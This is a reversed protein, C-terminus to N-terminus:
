CCCHRCGSQECYRWPHRYLVRRVKREAATWAADRAGRASATSQLVWVAVLTCPGRGESCLSGRRCSAFGRCCLVGLHSSCLCPRGECDAARLVRSRQRWSPPTQEGKRCNEIASGQTVPACTRKAGRGLAESNRVSACVGERCLDQGLQNAKCISCAGSSQPRTNVSKAHNSCLVIVVLGTPSAGSPLSNAAVGVPQLTQRVCVAPKDARM